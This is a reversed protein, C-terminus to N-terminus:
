SGLRRAARRAFRAPDVLDAAARSLPSPADMALAAVHEALLPALSFGRSGFGALLFLGPAGAPGALPLRDPTVARVAARGGLPADALRAALRPLAHALLELNRQHDTGRLDCAEDDRDHTAGFLVGDRLPLVYGGWAAAPVPGAGVAWSAQGRVPRLPADTALVASGLGASGLAAAVIVADAGVIEAGAADLLRWSGADANGDAAVAAVRARRPEGTWAALVPAPQIVLAASQRLAAPAPEGLRGSAEAPSLMELTAPAFLDSDAIRGFREADRPGQVLQLVERSVVAGPIAAYLDTAREFAQAFLAAAEGLGADLRPTVLAAPNGSGGAGAAEAEVVIPEGGLARVARAAAAGAIGAGVVAVRRVPSGAAEGPLWAELRERKRGFGPRKEVTFGAAALGRRVDGAVTFTAARAGPASRAAVLGLVQPTWMGPNLAPSFGDLFWADARGSWGELAEAVDLMALDLVADLEPFEVRRRGRVRPPWRSTMLGAVEALEPWRGLARAAEDAAIPFAEVSFVHLRGGPPRTRRWLDLLAAVNLGTGFGLEGVVFRRRGAWARPLGCGELFVARTEALGDEASFYVDGFRASRPQGDDTWTLPSTPPPDASM